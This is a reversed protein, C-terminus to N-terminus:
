WIEGETKLDESCRRWRYIASLGFPPSPTQQFKVSFVVKGFKLIVGLCNVSAEIVAGFLTLWSLSIWSPRSYFRIFAKLFKWSTVTNMSMSSPSGSPAVGLSLSTMTLTWGPVTESPCKFTRVLEWNSMSTRTRLKLIFHSRHIM